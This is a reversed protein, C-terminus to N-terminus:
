NGHSGAEYNRQIPRMARRGQLDFVTIQVHEDRQLQLSIIASNTVPNPYLKIGRQIQGEESASSRSTTSENNCDGLQDGQSLLVPVANVSVSQTHGNHCLFVKNKDGDRIDKEAITKSM